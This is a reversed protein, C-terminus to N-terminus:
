VPLVLQFCPYVAWVRHVARGLDAAPGPPLQAEAGAQKAAGAGAAMEGSHDGLYVAAPTGAAPHAGLGDCPQRGPAGRPADWGREGPVGPDAGGLSGSGGPCHRLDQGM